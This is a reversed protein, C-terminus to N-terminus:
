IREPKVDLCIKSRRGGRMRGKAAADRMNDKQTGSFLHKPNCCPPNDCHHCVCLGVPIPGNTLEWATRHAYVYRTRRTRGFIGYRYKGSGAYSGIWPWCSDPERIDVFLWFRDEQCPRMAALFARRYDRTYPTPSVRQNTPPFSLRPVLHRIMERSCGLRRALEAQSLQGAEAGMQVARQLATM